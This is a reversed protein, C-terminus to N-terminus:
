RWQLSLDNGFLKGIISIIANRSLVPSKVTITGKNAYYKEFKIDFELEYEPHEYAYKSLTNHIAVNTIEKWTHGYIDLDKMEKEYDFVVKTKRM